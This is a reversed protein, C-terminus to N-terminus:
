QEMEGFKENPKLSLIEICLEAPKSSETYFLVLNVFIERSRSQEQTYMM